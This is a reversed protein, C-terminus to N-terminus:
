GELISLASLADDWKPWLLGGSWRIISWSALLQSCGDVLAVSAGWIGKSELISPASLANHVGLQLLGESGVIRWCAPLGFVM